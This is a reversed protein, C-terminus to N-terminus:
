YVVKRKVRVVYNKVDGNKQSSSEISTIKGIFMSKNDEIEKFMLVDGLSFEPTKLNKLALRVDMSDLRTILFAAEKIGVDLKDMITIAEIIGNLPALIISKKLNEMHKSYSRKLQKYIINQEEFEEKSLLKRAYLENSKIQDDKAKVLSRKVRDLDTRINRNIFKALTDGTFVVDGAQVFVKDIIGSMETDIQKELMTYRGSAYIPGAINNEKSDPLEIKLVVEPSKVSGGKCGWICLIIIFVTVKSYRM